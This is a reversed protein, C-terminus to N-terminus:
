ENTAPLQKLPEVSGTKLKPKYEDLAVRLEESTLVFGKGHAFQRLKEVSDVGSIYMQGRLTEEKEVRELFKHAAVVSM